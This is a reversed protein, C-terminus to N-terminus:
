CSVRWEYGCIEFPYLFRPLKLRPLTFIFPFTAWMSAKFVHRRLETGRPLCELSLERLARDSWFFMDLSPYVNRLTNWALRQLLFMPHGLIVEFAYIRGDHKLVRGFEVFAERICREGEAVSEAVIHHLLYFCIIADISRDGFPLHSAAGYVRVDVDYNRRVAEYSLDVGVLVNRPRRTYPVSPGCGVDVLVADGRGRRLYEDLSAELWKSQPMYFVKRTGPQHTTESMLGFTGDFFSRNRNRDEVLIVDDMIPLMRACATSTCRLADGDVALPAWCYPCALIRSLLQFQHGARMAM